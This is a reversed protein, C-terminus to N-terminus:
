STTTWTLLSEAQTLRKKYKQMGVCASLKGYLLGRTSFERCSYCRIYIQTRLTAESPNPTPLDLKLILTVCSSNILARM